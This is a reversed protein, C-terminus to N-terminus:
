LDTSITLRYMLSASRNLFLANFLIDFSYLKNIKYFYQLFSTKIEKHSLSKIFVKIFKFM